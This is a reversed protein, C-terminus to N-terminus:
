LGALLQASSPINVIREVLDRAVALSGSRPATAYMPLDSILRWAPRTQIGKANTDELFSERETADNLLLANLWANSEGANSGRVFISGFLDAYQQALNRKLALFRPLEELQACGLAANLNPMRDNYGVQDHDFTWGKGVRATTTLHRVRHALEADNTLIMGGGGTTVIKNGNFSLIGAKALGGCPFGKYRSGLAEAADEVIPLDYAACVELLRDMDVPNGFVHMPVVAAVRLGTAAHRLVGDAFNCRSSLVDSVAEPDMGLTGLESDVFLPVAGTHVIANATAVFTLAPCLVTDGPGVGLGQLAARLATTGNVTAVAFTVNCIDACMSELRTVYAGGTSVWATDLCDKVYAWANGTIWPEHLAIPGQAIGLKGRLFMQLTVAPNTM